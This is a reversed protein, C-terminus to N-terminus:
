ANALKMLNALEESPLNMAEPVRTCNFDKLLEISAAMGHREGYGRMAERLVDLTIVAPTAAGQKKVLFEANKEIALKLDEIAEPGKAKWEQNAAMRKETSLGGQEMQDNLTALLQTFEDDAVPAEKPKRGRKKPEASATHDEQDLTATPVPAEPVVRCEERFNPKPAPASVPKSSDGAAIIALMSSLARAELPSITALNLIINTM